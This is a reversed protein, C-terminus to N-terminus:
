EFLVGFIPKWPSCESIREVKMLSGNGKLVKTKDIKLHDGLLVTFENNRLVFCNMGVFYMEM